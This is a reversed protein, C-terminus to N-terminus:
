LASQSDRAGRQEIAKVMGVLEPAEIEAIPRAGLAPLINADLRRRTSDVHRPSKGHQWHELWQAAISAFSGESAVRDATKEAKRQAMPDVGSALLKRADGHHERAIALSVDPYRGFSM